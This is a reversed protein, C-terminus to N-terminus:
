TVLLAQELEFSVDPNDEKSSAKDLMKKSKAGGIRGLAWASYSRVMPEPDNLANGLAEIAAGDKSNGLAIAANRRLFKNEWMYGYLVQQVKERFYREDMGILVLPDFNPAVEELFADPVLKQKQAVM